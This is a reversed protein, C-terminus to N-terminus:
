FNLVEQNNVRIASGQPGQIQRERKFLGQGRLEELQQRLIERLHTDSM